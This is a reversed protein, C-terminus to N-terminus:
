RAIAALTSANVAQGIQSAFHSNATADTPPGITILVDHTRTRDTNYLPLQGSNFTWRTLTWVPNISGSTKVVFKIQTSITDPTVSNKSSTADVSSLVRNTFMADTLWKDLNLDSQVLFSDKTGPMDKFYWNKDTCISREGDPERLLSIPYYPYYKNIKTSTSSITGGFGVGFSRPTSVFEDGLDRLSPSLPSKRTVGINVASSEDVQLLLSVQAGWGEPFLPKETFTNTNRNENIIQLKSEATKVAKKLDCFIQRKIATEMRRTGDPGSTLEAM